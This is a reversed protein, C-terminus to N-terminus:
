YLDRIDEQLSHGKTIVIHLGDLQAGNYREYAHKADVDKSFVVYGSGESRGSRDYNIKITKIEGIKEFVLRLDNITIAHHLNSINLRSGTFLQLNKGSPGGGGRHSVSNREFLTPGNGFQKRTNITQPYENDDNHFNNFNNNRKTTLGRERRPSVIHSTKRAPSSISKTVKIRDLAIAPRSERDEKRSILKPSTTKPKTNNQFTIKLPPPRIPTTTSTAPITTTTTTSKIFTKKPKLIKKTKDIDLRATFKTSGRSGRKSSPLSSTTKIPTGASKGRARSGKRENKIIQELSMDM